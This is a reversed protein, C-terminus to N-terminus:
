VESLSNPEENPLKNILDIPKTDEIIKIAKNIQGNIEDKKEQMMKLLKKKASGKTKALHEERVGYSHETRYTIIEQEDEVYYAVGMITSEIIGPNGLDAGPYVVSQGIQFKNNIKM